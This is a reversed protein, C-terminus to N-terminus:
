RATAAPAFCGAFHRDLEPLAAAISRAPSSRSRFAARAGRAARRRVAGEVAADAPRQPRRRHDGLRRRRARRRPRDPRRRGRRGLAAHRGALQLAFGLGGAAGAGPADAVRAGFAAEALARSARRAGRRLARRRGARVGKQPGFIATAGMRAAVASQQRGVHHPDRVGRARPDLRAADVRALSALGRPRRRSRRATTTSCRARRAGRLLGSGGDNTSSGGLGIMFRRVGADLLARMSSASAARRASRRGAVRM